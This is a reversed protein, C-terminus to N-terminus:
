APSRSCTGRVVVECGLTHVSRTQSPAGALEAVLLELANRGMAAINVRVTSLPPSLYRAIPIDDFGALAMDGPVSLGAERLGMLCGVATMDNAAFIADPRQERALLAQVARYGSAESFDGPLIQLPTGPAFRAMAERYGRDREQADFNGPPGAIFAVRRHGAGILHRTMAFAGAHNDFNLVSHEHSSLPSNLLVTPLGHPLNAHLFRADLPPALIVMGDVRGQMARLAAAAGASGDHSSSVLLHLGNARAALDMGRILESFFEGHMDPLLVGVAHSRRTILSRAAAHPLYRLRAAVERVRQGTEETVGGHGNLARSVSAVSVGAERAVDKITVAM